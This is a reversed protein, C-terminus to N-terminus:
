RPISTMRKADGSASSITHRSTQVIRIIESGIQNLPLIRDALGADAVFGPMGWVVSSAEDQALIRGGAESIVECGRLGDRGMGTLVVALTGGGYVNVVSRFLVDVSPRCSNEPTGEHTHLCVGQRCREVEMHYGGAAIWATGPTVATGPVAERVLIKAKTDLRDALLKTFVPPMHQVILLPVPFDSPFLPILDHLANPGGTSVGIAVASVPERKAPRARRIPKSPRAPKSAPHLRKEMAGFTKIKPVLQERVQEMAAALDRVNSPKTVYTSAGRALADLTAVGGRKTLTSFMIVRIHPHKEQLAELVELGDMEPMEVDLIIVDPNLEPIRALAIKGHAATGVVEIDPEPELIKSVLQRVVVADDVVLVRIKPM